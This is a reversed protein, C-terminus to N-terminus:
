CGLHTLAKLELDPNNFGSIKTFLSVQSSSYHKNAITYFLM